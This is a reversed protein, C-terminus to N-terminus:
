KFLKKILKKLIKRLRDRAAQKSATKGPKGFLSNMNEKYAEVDPQDFPNIGLAYGSIACAIMFFMMLKGIYYVTRNEITVDILPVKGKYHAIATAMAATECIQNMGKNALFNLGDANNETAVIIIDKYPNVIRIFTEFFISTASFTM